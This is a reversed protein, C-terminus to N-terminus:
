GVWTVTTGLAKAIVIVQEAEEPGGLGGSGGPV